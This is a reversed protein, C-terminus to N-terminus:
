RLDQNPSEDHIKSLANESLQQLEYGRTVKIIQHALVTGIVAAVGTAGPTLKDAHGVRLQGVAEAQTIHCSADVGLVALQVVTPQM